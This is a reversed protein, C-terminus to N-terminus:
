RFLHEEVLSISSTSGCSFRPPETEPQRLYPANGHTLTQLTRRTQDVPVRPQPLQLLRGPLIQRLKIVSFLDVKRPAQVHGDLHRASLVLRRSKM